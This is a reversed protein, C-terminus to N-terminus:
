LNKNNQYAFTFDENRYVQMITEQEQAGEGECMPRQAAIYSSPSPHQTYTM